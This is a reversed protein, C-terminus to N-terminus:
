DSKEEEHENTIKSIEGLNKYINNFNNQIENYIIDLINSDIKNKKRNDIEEIIYKMLSNNFDSYIQNFLSLLAENIVM